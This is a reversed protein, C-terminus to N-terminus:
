AVRGQHRHPLQGLLAALEQLPYLNSRTAACGARHMFAQGAQTAPQASQCQNCVLQGRLLSWRCMWSSIRDSPVASDRLAAAIQDIVSIDPM